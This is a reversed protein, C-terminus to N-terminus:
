MSDVQHLMDKSFANKGVDRNLSMTVIGNSEPIPRDLLINSSVSSSLFRPQITRFNKFLRLM